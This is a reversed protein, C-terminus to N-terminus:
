LVDLHCAAASQIGMAMGLVRDAAEERISGTVDRQRSAVRCCVGALHGMGPGTRAHRGAAQVLTLGLLVTNGTMKATFVQWPDAVVSIVPEDHGKTCTM